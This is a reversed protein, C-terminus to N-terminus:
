RRSASSSTPRGVSPRSFNKGALIPKFDPAAPSQASATGAALAALTAAFVFRARIM